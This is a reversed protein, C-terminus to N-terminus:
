ELESHVAAGSVFPMRKIQLHSNDASVSANFHKTFVTKRFHSSYESYGPKSHACNYLFMLMPTEQRKHIAKYTVIAGALPFNMDKFCYFCGHTIRQYWLLCNFCKQYQSMHATETVISSQEYVNERCRICSVTSSSSNKHSPQNVGGM